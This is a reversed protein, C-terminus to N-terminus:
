RPILKNLIILLTDDIGDYELRIKIGLDNQANYMYFIYNNNEDLSSNESSNKIFGSNKMDKLIQNFFSQNINKYYLNLGDEDEFGKILNGYEIETIGNLYEHNKPWSYYVEKYELYSSIDGNLSFEEVIFYTANGNISVNQKLCAGTINDVIFEQKYLIEKVAVNKIYITVDRDLHKENEQIFFKEDLRNLYNTLYSFISEEYKEITPNEENLSKEKSIDNIDYWVNNLRDYLVGTSTNGETIICLFGNTTKIAKIITENQKLVITYNKFNNIIEEKTPLDLDTCQKLTQYDNLYSLDINDFSLKLIKGVVTTKDSKVEFSLCANTEKDIIITENYSGEQIYKIVNRGLYTANESDYDLLIKKDLHYSLVFYINDIYANMTYDGEIITKTKAKEDLTYYTNTTFDYYLVIDQDKNKYYYATSSKIFQYENGNLYVTINFENYQDEIKSLDNKITNYNNYKSLDTDKLNISEIKANIEKESTKLYFGLCINTKKSIYIEEIIKENEKKYVNIDYDLYTLKEVEYNKFSTKTTHYSLVYYINNIYKDLAYNTNLETKTKHEDDIEYYLKSIDDFYIKVNKELNHYFIGKSSKILQYKENNINLIIDFYKYEKKISETSTKSCKCSFLFVSLLCFAILLYNKKM